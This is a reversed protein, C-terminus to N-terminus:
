MEAVFGVDSEVSTAAKTMCLGVLRPRAYPVCHGCPTRAGEPSYMSDSQFMWNTVSVKWVCM